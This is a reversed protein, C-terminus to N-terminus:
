IRDNISNVYSKNNRQFIRFSINKTQQLINYLRTKTNDDGAAVVQFRIQQIAKPDADLAKQKSLYFQLLDIIRKSVFMIQNADQLIMIVKEQQYKESKM